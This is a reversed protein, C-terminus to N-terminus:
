GDIDISQAMRKRTETEAWLREIEALQKDADISLVLPKGTGQIAPHLVPGVDVIHEIEEVYLIRRGNDFDWSTKADFQLSSGKILEKDIKSKVRVFEPDNADYPHSYLGGFADKSLKLGTTMDGLVFDKNHNYRLEVNENKSLVQDLANPKIRLNFKPMVYENAPNGDYFKTFYGSLYTNNDQLEIKVSDTILEIQM